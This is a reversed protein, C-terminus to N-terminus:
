YLRKRSEEPQGYNYMEEIMRLSEDVTLLRKLIKDGSIRVKRVMRKQDYNENRMAKLLALAFPRHTVLPTYEGIEALKDLRNRAAGEDPIVLDGNRFVKYFNDRVGSGTHASDNIYALLTSNSFGYDESLKLYRQYSKVGSQAYSRAYDLVGWSRHLINMSRAETVGLHPVLTFYIPLGLEKCAVFRHQGDIIQYSDNVLIPQVRTLNGVEEFAAKLAEIHGRNQERNAEMFSFMDYDNSQQVLNELAKPM